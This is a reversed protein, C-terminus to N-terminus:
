VRISSGSTTLITLSSANKPTVTMTALDLVVRNDLLGHPYERLLPRPLYRDGIEIHFSGPFHVSLVPNLKAEWSPSTPLLGRDLPRQGQRVV